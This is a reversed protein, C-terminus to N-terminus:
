LLPQLAELADEGVLLLARLVPGLCSLADRGLVRLDSALAEVEVVLERRIEDFPVIEDRELVKAYLVHDLVVPQGFRDLVRSPTLENRNVSYLVRFTPERM